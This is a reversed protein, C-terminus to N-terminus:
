EEDSQGIPLPLQTDGATEVKVGDGVLQAIDDQTAVRVAFSSAVHRIAQAQSPARVLRDKHGDDVRYIRTPTKTTM